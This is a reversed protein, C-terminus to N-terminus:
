DELGEEEQGRLSEEVGEGPGEEDLAEEAVIGGVAGVLLEEEGGEGCVGVFALLLPPLPTDEDLDDEGKGESPTTEEELHDDHLDQAKKSLLLFLISVLEDKMVVM